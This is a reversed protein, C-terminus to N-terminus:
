ECSEKTFRCLMEHVIDVSDIYYCTNTTKTGVKIICASEPMVEFNFENAWRGVSYRQLRMMMMKNRRIQREEPMEVAVQIAEEIADLDNPNVMLAEHLEKSSGALERLILVGTGNHRSAVFENSVLNMGYRLPLILAIDSLSYPEIREDMSFFQYLYQIILGIFIDPRQERIMKPLLLLNYDQIWLIDAEKIIELIKEAHPRPFIPVGNAPQLATELDQIERAKFQHNEFGTLGVWQPEHSSYFDRLVSITTEEEKENFYKGRKWPINVPLLNSAPVLRKM